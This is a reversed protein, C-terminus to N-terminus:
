AIAAFSLSDVAAVEADIGGEPTSPMWGLSAVHLPRDVPAVIRARASVREWGRVIDFPEMSVRAVGAARFQGACWEAAREYAPSGTLRPGMAVLERTYELSRGGAVSSRALGAPVSAAILLVAVSSYRRM